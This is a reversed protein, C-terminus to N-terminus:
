IDSCDITKNHFLSQYAYAFFIQFAQFHSYLSKFVLIHHSLKFLALLVHFM